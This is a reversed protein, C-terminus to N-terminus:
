NKCSWEFISKAWLGSAYALFTFSFIGFPIMNQSEDLLGLYVPGHILAYFFLFVIGPFGIGIAITSAIHLFVKM